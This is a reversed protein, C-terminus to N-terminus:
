LRTTTSAHSAAGEKVVNDLRSAFLRCGFKWKEYVVKRPLMFECTVAMQVRYRASIDSSTDNNAGCKATVERQLIPSAHATNVVVIWLRRKGDFVLKV